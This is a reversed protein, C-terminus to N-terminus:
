ILSKSRQALLFHPRPNEPNAEISKELIDSAKQSYTMGRMPSVQIRGQYLFGQIAYLESKDGNLSLSKEINKEALDLIADKKDGDKEWFSMNVQIYALYYLPEWRASETMAIREFKSAIAQMDTISKASDLQSLGDNIANELPTQAKVGLSIAIVAFMLIKRKMTAM